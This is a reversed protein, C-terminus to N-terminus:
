GASAANEEDGEVVEKITDLMEFSLRVTGSDKSRCEFYIAESRV